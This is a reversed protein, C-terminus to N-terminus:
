IRHSERHSVWPRNRKADLEIEKEVDIRIPDNLHSNSSNSSKRFELNRIQDDVAKEIKANELEQKLNVLWSIDEIREIANVKLSYPAKGKIVSRLIDKEWIFSIAHKVLGIYNMESERNETDFSNVSAVVKSSGENDIVGLYTTVIENLIGQNHIKSIAARTLATDKNVFVIRKLLNDDDILGISAEAIDVNKANLCIECLMNPDTIQVMAHNAFLINASGCAYQALIENDGIKQLALKVIDSKNVTNAIKVLLDTRQGEELKNIGIEVFQFTDSECVYKAIFEMDRCNELAKGVIANRRSGLIVKQFAKEILLLLSDSDTNKVLQILEDIAEFAFEDDTCAVAGLLQPNNQEAGFKFIDIIKRLAIERNRYDGANKAIIDLINTDHIHDKMIGKLVEQWKINEIVKPVAYKELFKYFIDGSNQVISNCNRLWEFILETNSLRNRAKEQVEKESDEQALKMLSSFNRLKDILLLRVEKNDCNILQLLKEQCKIQKIAKLRIGTKSHGMAIQLLYGEDHIQNILSSRQNSGDSNMVAEFLFRDQESNDNM